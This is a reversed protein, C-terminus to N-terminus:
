DNGLTRLYNIAEETPWEEKNIFSKWTGPWTMNQERNPNYKEYNIEEEDTIVGIDIFYNDPSEQLNVKILRGTPHVQIITSTINSIGFKYREVKEGPFLEELLATFPQEKSM